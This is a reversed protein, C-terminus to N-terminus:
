DNRDGILNQITEKIEDWNEPYVVLGLGGADNIKKLVHKQLESIVAGKSRKLELAVFRGNICALIDPTGSIAVQQVKVSWVKGTRKRLENLWPQVTNSKFNKELM